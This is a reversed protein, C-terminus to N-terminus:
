GAERWAPRSHAALYSEAEAKGMYRALVNASTAPLDVMILADVCDGFNRDLNFGLV